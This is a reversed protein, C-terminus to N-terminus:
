FMYTFNLLFPDTGVQQVCLIHREYLQLKALDTKCMDKVIVVGILDHRSFRDFDYISFQVMRKDLEAYPLQFAFTENFEPNLTKRHVKTQSKNKRDPLLYVKVYPDSTGSFDKAPLELARLVTVILSQDQHSYQLSFILRGCTVVSEEEISPTKCMQQEHADQRYLEPKFRGAASPQEKYKMSHITFDVSSLDLQHSLQRQFTQHRQPVTPLTSQKIVTKFHSRGIKEEGKVVEPVPKGGNSGGDGPKILDPTSQSIKINYLNQLKSLSSQRSFTGLPPKGSPTPTTPPSHHFHKAQWCKVTCWAVISFTLASAGSVLLVLASLTLM